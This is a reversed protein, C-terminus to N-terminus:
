PHERRPSVAPLASRDGAIAHMTAEACVKDGRLLRAHSEVREASAWREIDFTLPMRLPTPRRFSVDLRTTKGAVGVDCNHHQVVADFFVAIFGGHVVGPPGEYPIPFEVTGTARDGEVEIEYLPFVPNFAGIDRSHDLYVRGDGEADDGVRPGSSAPVSAALAREAEELQATLQRLEDTSTEMSLAVGLLRRVVAALEVTDALPAEGFTWSM